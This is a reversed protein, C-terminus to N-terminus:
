VNQMELSFSIFNINYWDFTIRTIHTSIGESKPLADIADENHALDVLLFRAFNPYVVVIAFIVLHVHSM